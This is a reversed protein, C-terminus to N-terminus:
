GSCSRRARRVVHLLSRSFFVMLLIVLFMYPLAYLVDVFRM